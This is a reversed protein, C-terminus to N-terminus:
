ALTTSKSLVRNGATLAQERRRRAQPSVPDRPTLPPAAFTGVSTIKVTARGRSDNADRKRETRMPSMPYGGYAM